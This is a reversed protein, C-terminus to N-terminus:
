TALSRLLRDLSIYALVVLVLMFIFPIQFRIMQGLVVVLLGLGLALGLSAYHAKELPGTQVGPPNNVLRANLLTLDWSALSLTVAPLMWTFAAGLTLGYAAAAAAVALGLNATWLAKWQHAAMWIVFVLIGVAASWTGFPLYGFGLCLSSLVPCLLSLTKRLHPAKM